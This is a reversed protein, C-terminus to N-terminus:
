VCFTCTSESSYKNHVSWVHKRIWIPCGCAKSSATKCSSSEHAIHCHPCVQPCLHMSLLHHKTSLASFSESLVRGSCDLSGRPRRKPTTLNAKAKRRRRKRRRRRRAMTRWNRAPPPATPRTEALARTLSTMQCSSSTPSLFDSPNLMVVVKVSTHINEGIEYVCVCM